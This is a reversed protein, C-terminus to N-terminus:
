NHTTGHKLRTSSRLTAAAKSDHMCRLQSGDQLEGDLDTCARPFDSQQRAQGVEKDIQEILILIIADAIIERPGITEKTQKKAGKPDNAKTGVSPTRTMQGPAPTLLYQSFLGRRSEIPLCRWSSSQRPRYVRPRVPRLFHSMTPVHPGISRDTRNTKANREITPCNLNPVFGHSSSVLNCHLSPCLCLCIYLLPVGSNIEISRTVLRGLTPCRGSLDRTM